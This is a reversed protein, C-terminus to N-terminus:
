KKSVISTEAMNLCVQRLDFIINEIRRMREKGQESKPEPIEDIKAMIDNLKVSSMKYNCRALLDEALDTSNAALAMFTEAETLTKSIEWVLMPSIQTEDIVRGFHERLCKLLARTIIYIPHNLLTWPEESFEADMEPNGEPEDFSVGEKPMPWGAMVAIEDLTHGRLRNVTYLSAFRSIEADSKKLYLFWDKETWGRPNFNESFDDSDFEDM